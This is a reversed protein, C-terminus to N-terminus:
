KDDEAEETYKMYLSIINKVIASSIDNRFSYQEPFHEFQSAFIVLFHYYDNNNIHKEGFKIFNKIFKVDEIKDGCYLFLTDVANYLKLRHRCLLELKERGEVDDVKKKRM